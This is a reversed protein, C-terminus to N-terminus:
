IPLTPGVSRRTAELTLLLLATGMLVDSQSPNGVRESVIEPPLLPLYIAAAVALASFLLDLIPVGQLQFMGTVPIRSTERRWGFLLFVLGLVFSLHIGRHLLERILGFGSAYFHYVSMAVLVAAIFFGLTTGTARFATEPDFKREIEALEEATLEPSLAPSSGSM